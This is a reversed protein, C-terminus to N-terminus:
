NQLLKFVLFLYVFSCVFVYVGPPPLFITFAVQHFDSLTFKKYHVTLFNFSFYCANQRM